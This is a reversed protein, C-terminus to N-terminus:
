KSTTAAADARAKEFPGMGAWPFIFGLLVAPAAALLIGYPLMEPGGLIKETALAPTIPGLGNALLSNFIYWAAIARGRMRPPVIEQTVAYASGFTISNFFTGLVYGVVAMAPSTGFTTLLLAPIMGFAWVTTVRFRGGRKGSLTMRDGLYGTLLCAILGMISSPIGIMTGPVGPGLGFKRELMQPVWSILCYAVYTTMTYAGWVCIFAKPHGKVYTVFSKTSATEATQPEGLRKPERVTMLLVAMVLGPLGVIVFTAQWVALDGLLPFHVLPLGSLARLIMGGVFYSGSTGVIAAVSLVGFARGRQHPPFYDPLMSVSAPILTAEGVGVGIRALLLETYTSSLGCCITMLSWLAIGVVMLNRRVTRDVVWGLPIAVLTFFITFSFGQLIGM